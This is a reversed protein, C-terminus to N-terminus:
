IAASLLQSIEKFHDSPRQIVREEKLFLKRLADTAARHQALAQSAGHGEGLFNSSSIDSYVGVIFMSNSSLRGSEQHLRFVLDPYLKTLDPIPYLPRILDNPNFLSNNFYRSDLFKRLNLPGTETGILGLLAKFCDLRIETETLNERETELNKKNKNKTMKHAEIWKEKLYSDIGCAADIGLFMVLQLLNKDALFTRMGVQLYKDVLIPFRSMLYEKTFFQLSDTGIKVLNLFESSNHSEQDKNAPFKPHSLVLLLKSAPIQDFGIRNIFAVQASNLAKSASPTTSYFNLRFHSFKAGIRGRLM